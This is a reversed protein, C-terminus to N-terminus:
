LNKLKKDDCLLYDANKEKYLIIAESEGAGLTVNININSSINIVKDKCFDILQSGGTRSEKAIENYVANPIYVEGFLKELVELKDVIALSILASSDAILIM